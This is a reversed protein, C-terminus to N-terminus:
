LNEEKGNPYIVKIPVNTKGYHADYIQSDKTYLNGFVDSVIDGDDLSEADGLESYVVHKTAERDRESLLNSWSYKVSFNCSYGGPESPLQGTSYFTVKEVGEFNDKIKQAIAREDKLALEQM